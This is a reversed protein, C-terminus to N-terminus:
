SAVPTAGALLQLALGIIEPSSTEKSGGPFPPAPDYEMSLQVTRAFDEGFQRATLALAMDIGATVGGGTVFPGDFVYREAVVEVGMGAVVDRYAWHTAARREALLGAAGLLGSGTCVSTMWTASQAATRLWALLDPDSLSPLPRSSGPVMVVDPTAVDAFTATPTFLVARRDDWVPDLTAAVLLIQSDPWAAFVQYGGILDLATLDDYLPFAILM